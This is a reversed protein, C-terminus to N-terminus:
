NLQEIKKNYIKKQQAVMIHHIFVYLRVRAHLRFCIGGGKDSTFLSCFICVFYVRHLIVVGSLFELFTNDWNDYKTIFKHFKDKVTLSQCEKVIDINSSKFLKM